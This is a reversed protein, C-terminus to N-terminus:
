DDIAQYASTWFDLFVGPPEPSDMMRQTLLIGILEEKPDTYGTTGIGGDWGFRGPVTSLSERRINVAAGFGWGSHDGFFVRNDARQEPTLHDTTMLEVAPRSLIREGGYWGKNLMMRCFALYDDATTVLGAGGSEFAPPSGWRSSAPEDHVILVGSGAERRYSTPLRDLKNGPVHFGTDMMGLPEFIRERLFRELPQGSARAILVGLVDSGTHYMWREGPQHILPLRGLRKMWEDPAHLPPNPGPALGESEMARQIPHSGPPAMVAGIGLRFTLLDRVTIPRNSAVTDDLPGDPRKLVRRGALEPLLRDVAEDLRLACEEVLIMAAAATIPKTMSAIRFIADRRMPMSGGAALMGIAEVHTDGRRSVLAVLGPAEGREVYGAMAGRLRGLREKSLGGGSM